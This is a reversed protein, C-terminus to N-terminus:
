LIHLTLGHDTHSAIHIPDQLYALLTNSHVYHEMHILRLPHLCM